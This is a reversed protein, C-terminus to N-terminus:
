MFCQLEQLIFTLQNMPWKNGIPLITSFCNGASKAIDTCYMGARSSRPDTTFGVQNNVIIHITGGTTYNALGSMDFGEYVIGQWHIDTLCISLHISDALLDNVQAAFAADGHLILSM